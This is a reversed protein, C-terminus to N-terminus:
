NYAHGYLIDVSSGNYVLIRQLDMSGAQAITVIVDDHPTVMGSLYDEDIFTIVNTKTCKLQRSVQHMARVFAKKQRNSMAVASGSFIVDVVGRPTEFSLSPTIRDFISQRGTNTVYCDLNGKQVQNELFCKLQYCDEIEHGKEAHYSYYKGNEKQRTFVKIKPPREFFPESKIKNIINARSTNM